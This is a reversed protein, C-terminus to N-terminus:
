SSSEGSRSLRCPSNSGAATARSSSSCRDPRRSLRFGSQVSNTKWSQCRRHASRRACGAAAPAVEAHLAVDGLIEDAREGGVRELEDRLGSVVVDLLALEDAGAAPHPPRDSVPDRSERRGIEALLLRLGRVGEAPLPLVEGLHMALELGLEEVPQIRDFRLEEAALAHEVRAAAGPAMRLERRGVSCVLDKREVQALGDLRRADLEPAELVHVHDLAIQQPRGKRAGIRSASEVEDVRDADEMMQRLRLFSEPAEDAVYPRTSRDGHPHVAVLVVAEDPVDDLRHPADRRSHRRGQQAAERPWERDHEVANRLSEILRELPRVDAPPQRQARVDRAHCSEAEPLVVADDEVLEDGRGRRVDAARLELAPEGFGAELVDM